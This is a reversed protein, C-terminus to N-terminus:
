SRGCCWLGSTVRGIGLSVTPPFTCMVIKEATGDGSKGQFFGVVRHADLTNAVVGGFSFEVGVARGYSGLIATYMNWKEESDGYRSAKYWQIKDRGEQPLDPYLQYPLFTTTFLIPASPHSTRFTHLATRLRLLSLYTWPCITDLTFSITSLYM